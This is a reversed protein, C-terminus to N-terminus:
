GLIVVGRDVAAEGGANRVDFHVASQQDDLRTRGLLRVTIASPM